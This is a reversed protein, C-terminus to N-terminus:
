AYCPKSTMNCQRGQIYHLRIDCKEGRPVGALVCHGNSSLMLMLLRILLSSNFYSLKRREQDQNNCKWVLLHSCGAEDIYM